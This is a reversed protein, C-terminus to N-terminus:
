GNRTLGIVIRPGGPCDMTYMLSDNDISDTCTKDRFQGTTVWANGQRHFTEKGNGMCDPGCSTFDWPVQDGNRKVGGGDVMTATYNGPTLEASATPSLALAVGVSIAAAGLTRTLAKM